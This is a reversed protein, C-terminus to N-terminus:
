KSSPHNSLLKFILWGLFVGTSNAMFDYIDGSRGPILYNQLIEVVGGFLVPIAIAFLIVRQRNQLSRTKYLLFFSTISLTFYLIGHVLKDAGAFDLIWLKVGKPIPQSTLCLYSILLYVSAVALHYYKITFKSM